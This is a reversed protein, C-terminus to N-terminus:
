LDRRSDKKQLGKKDIAARGRLGGKRRSRLRGLLGAQLIM